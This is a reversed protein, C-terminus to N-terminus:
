LGDSSIKKFERVMGFCVIEDGQVVAATEAGKLERNGTFGTVMDDADNFLQSTDQVTGTFSTHMQFSTYNLFPEELAETFWHQVSPCTYSQTM